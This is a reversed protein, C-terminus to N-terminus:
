PPNEKLGDYGHHRAGSISGPLFHELRRLLRVGFGTWSRHLHLWPEEYFVFWRDEMEQPVNGERIRMFEAANYTRDLSISARATPLPTTEWDDRTAAM